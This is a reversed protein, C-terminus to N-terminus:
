NSKVKVKFIFLSKLYKTSIPQLINCASYECPQTVSSGMVTGGIPKNGLKIVFCNVKYSKRLCYKCNRLTEVM